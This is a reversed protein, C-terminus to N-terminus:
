TTCRIWKDDVSNGDIMYQITSNITSFQFFTAESLPAVIIQNLAQIYTYLDVVSV